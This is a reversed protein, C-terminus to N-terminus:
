SMAKGQLLMCLGSNLVMLRCGGDCSLCRCGLIHIKFVFGLSVDLGELELIM